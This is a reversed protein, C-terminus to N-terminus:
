KYLSAVYHLISPRTSSGSDEYGLMIDYVVVRNGGGPCRCQHGLFEKIHLESRRFHAQLDPIVTQPFANRDIDPLCGLLSAILHAADDTSSGKANTHGRSRVTTVDSSTFPMRDNDSRIHWLCIAALVREIRNSRCSIKTRFVLKTNLIKKLQYVIM